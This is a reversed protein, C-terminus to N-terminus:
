SVRLQQAINVNEIVKNSPRTKVQNVINETRGQVDKDLGFSGRIGSMIYERLAPMRWFYLIPNAASNFAPLLTVMANQYYFLTDFQYFAYYIQWDHTILCMTYVVYDVVLPINCVGYLLAFMLITVTARNRSQQHEKQEINKKKRTLVVVSIMCSAAVVLPPATYFINQAIALAHLEPDFVDTIVDCRILYPLFTMRIDDLLNLIVM